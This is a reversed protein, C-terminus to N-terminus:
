INICLVNWCFSGYRDIAYDLCHSLSGKLLGTAFGQSIIENVKFIAIFLHHPFNDFIDENSTSTFSM